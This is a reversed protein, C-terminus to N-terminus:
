FNAPDPKRYKIQWTFRLTDGVKPPCEPYVPPTIETSTDPQVCAYKDPCPLPFVNTVPKSTFTYDTVVVNYEFNGGCAVNTLGYLYNGNVDTTTTITRGGTTITVTA